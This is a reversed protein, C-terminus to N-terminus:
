AIIITDEEIWSGYNYFEIIFNSFAKCAADITEKGPVKGLIKMIINNTIGLNVLYKIEDTYDEKESDLGFDEVYNSFRLKAGITYYNKIAKSLYHPDDSNQTKSIANSISIADADTCIDVYGFQYKKGCLKQAISYKSLSNDKSYEDDIDQMLTALDGAWGLWRPAIVKCFLYGEITAALHGIDILGGEEDILAVEDNSAYRELNNYLYIDKNKVYEIFTDDIDELLTVMFHYKRYKFSRLFNTIGRVVTLSDRTKGNQTRYDVYYEELKEIYKNYDLVKGYSYDILAEEDKGSYADKDLDMRKDSGTSINEIEYFQDLTWGKPMTFGMNGSYGTSMDSVFCKEAYGKNMVQTCVNRTGYIGVKYQPMINNNISKFYPIIYKKIEDDTPDMDVAFFIVKNGPIGRKRAAVPARLADTKGREETFYGIDSGSEQYIMFLKLGANLIREIEGKKLQKYNQGTLYRGVIKYGNDKLYKLREDTMEFRTDCAICSRDPNGRSTMLSMWTDLDCKGTKNLCMDNQFTKLIEGLSNDWEGSRIDVDTYGNCYLSYRVLLIAESIEDSMYTSGTYPIVPVLRKTTPGFNGNATDTDLGEIAQLALILNECMERGYIGDCPGYDIYGPYTRNLYQQMERINADGGSVRKFQRMSLLAQMVEITVTSDPNIMGADEKMQRIGRGTGGYFHKTIRDAGTSYGKCWLAGQIIAYINDEDDADDAQQKIGNPFRSNFRATTTPGFNSSTATIGFEIQMARMLASITAWGTNGTESVEVYGTKGGYTNNLWQQTKLVMQDM